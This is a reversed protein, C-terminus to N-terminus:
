LQRISIDREVGSPPLQSTTMTHSHQHQTPAEAYAPQAVSIDAHQMVNRDKRLMSREANLHSFEAYM